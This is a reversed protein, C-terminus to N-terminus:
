VIFIEFHQQFCEAHNWDKILNKGVIYDYTGQLVIDCDLQADIVGCVVVLFFCIKQLFM